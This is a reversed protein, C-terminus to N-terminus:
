GIRKLLSKMQNIDSEMRGVAHTLGRIDAAIDMIRRERRDEMSNLESVVAVLAEFDLRTPKDKACPDPAAAAAAEVTKVAVAAPPPDRRYNRLSIMIAAALVVAAGISRISEPLSDILWKVLDVSEM